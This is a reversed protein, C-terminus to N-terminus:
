SCFGGSNPGANSSKRLCIGQGFARLRLGCQRSTRPGGPDVSCGEAGGLPIYAPRLVLSGRRPAVVGRQAALRLINSALSAVCSVKVIAGSGAQLVELHVLSPGDCGSWICGGLRGRPSPSLSLLGVFVSVLSPSPSVLALM